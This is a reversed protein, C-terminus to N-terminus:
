WGPRWVEVDGDEDLRVTLKFGHDTMQLLHQECVLLKAPLSNAGVALTVRKTAEKECNKFNCKPSAEERTQM